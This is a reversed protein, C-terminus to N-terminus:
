SGVMSTRIMEETLDARNSPGVSTAEKSWMSLEIVLAEVVEAQLGRRMTDEGIELYEIPSLLNGRKNTELSRM